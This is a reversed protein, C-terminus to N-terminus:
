KRKLYRLLLTVLEEQLLGQSLADPREVVARHIVAHAVTDILWLALEPDPVDTKFRGLAELMPADEPDWKRAPRAPMEETLAHHLRPNVAHATFGLAVLTQILEKLTSFKRTALVERMAAREAKVHRRQVEAVLAEKGPFFQYLSAVNVGARDAIRNTTLKAYGDRVLIDATAQVLADVTARSREQTPTKRPSLKARPMGSEQLPFALQCCLCERVNKDGDGSAQSLLGEM